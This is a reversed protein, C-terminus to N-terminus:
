SAMRRMGSLFDSPIRNKPARRCVLAGDITPMRLPFTVILKGARDYLLASIASYATFPFRIKRALVDAKLAAFLM